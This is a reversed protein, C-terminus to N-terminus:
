RAEQAELGANPGAAAESVAAGASGPRWSLRDGAHTGSAAVTGVPLEIAYQASRYVPTRRGPQLNEHVALVTGHSDVFLVDLPFRMWYMHVGKCPTLFIGEGAEPRRRLLFGRMRGLVTDALHIQGGIISQRTENVVRLFRSM